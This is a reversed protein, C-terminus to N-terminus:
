EDVEAEPVRVAAVIESTTLDRLLLIPGRGEPPYLARDIVYPGRQRRLEYQHGAYPEFCVNVVLHNTARGGQVGLCTERPALRISLTRVPIPEGLPTDVSVIRTFNFVGRGKTSVLATESDPLPQGEYGQLATSACSAVVLGSLISSCLQILRM